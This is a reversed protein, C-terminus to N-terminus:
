AMQVEKASVAHGMAEETEFRYNKSYDDKYIENKM